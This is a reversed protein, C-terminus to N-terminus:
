SWVFTIVIKGSWITFSQGSEAPPSIVVYDDDKVTEVFAEDQDDLDVAMPPVPEGDESAM